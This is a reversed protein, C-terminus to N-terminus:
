GKLLVETDTDTQFALGHQHRLEARLEQFNYIEGNFVILDGNLESRLPQAGADSLDLISLRAHALATRGDPSLM